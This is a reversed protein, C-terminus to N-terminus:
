CAQLNFHNPLLKGKQVTKNQNRRTKNEVKGGVMKDFIRIQKAPKQKLLATVILKLKIKIFPLVTSYRGWKLNLNM